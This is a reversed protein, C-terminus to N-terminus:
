IVSFTVLPSGNISVVPMSIGANRIVFLDGPEAQTILSPDIRSDSCTLFLIEPEQYNALKSFLDERKAFSYNKFDYFGSIIKKM